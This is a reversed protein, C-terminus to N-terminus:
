RPPACGIVRLDSEWGGAVLDDYGDQDFDAAVIGRRLGTRPLVLSHPFTGDGANLAVEVGENTAMAIDLDGDGDPDFAVTQAPEDLTPYEAPPGFTGDGNGLAVVLARESFQTGILDLVRDGDVDATTSEISAFQFTNATTADYGAVEDYLLITVWSAQADVIADLDGDNDLDALEVNFPDPDELPTAVGTWTGPASEHHVWLTDLGAITVFDPAGDGDVDGAAVDSVFGPIDVANDILWTGDPQYYRFQLGGVARVIDPAGDGDVDITDAGESDSGLASIPSLTGGDNHLVTQGGAAAYVDPWGDGELDLVTLFEPGSSAPQLGLDVCLARCTASCGDGIERNGDDCEEGDDLIGNGCPSVSCDNDCGDDNVRNGDDCLEGPDVRGDGCVAASDDGDASSDDDGSVDEGDDPADGEGAEPSDAAEAGDGEPGGDDGATASTSGGTEAASDAMTDDGGCGALVTVLMLRKVTRDGM